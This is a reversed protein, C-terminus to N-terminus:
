KKSVDIYIFIKGCVNCFWENLRYGKEIMREDDNKCHPCKM